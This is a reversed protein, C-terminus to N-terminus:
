TAPVSWRSGEPHKCRETALWRKFTTCGCGPARCKGLGMRAAGDWLECAECATARAAYVEASVVPAGAAVWRGVAAAFNAAMEVPTPEPPPAPRAQAPSAGPLAEASSRLRVTGRLSKVRDLSM